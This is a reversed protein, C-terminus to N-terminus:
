AKDIKLKDNRQLAWSWMPEEGTEHRSPIFNACKWKIISFVDTSTPKKLPAIRDDDGVSYGMFVLKLHAFFFHRLKRQAV